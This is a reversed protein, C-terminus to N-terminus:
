NTTLKMQHFCDDQSTCLMMPQGGPSLMSAPNWLGFIYMQRWTACNPMFDSDGWYRILCNGVGKFYAMEDTGGDAIHHHHIHTAHCLEHAVTFTILRTINVDYYQAVVPSAHSVDINVHFEANTAAIATAMRRAFAEHGPPQDPPFENPKFPQVNVIYDTWLHIEKVEDPVFAGTTQNGADVGILPITTALAKAQDPRVAPHDDAYIAIGHLHKDTPSNFNVWRGYTSNMISNELRGYKSNSFHYVKVNTVKGYGIAGARIAAKYTTGYRTMDALGITFLEKAQPSLRTYVPNFSDDETLFGRYEDILAINDGVNGNDPKLDRDWNVGYGYGLIHEHEEWADAIKNDDKDYPITIYTKNKDYYPSANIVDGNDLTVEATLRAWAGYDMCTIQVIALSGKNIVSTAVSDTCKTPDFANIWFYKTSDSIKLDAKDDAGEIPYNSNFGKYHTINKLTYCVTFNGPYLTNSNNKDHVEVYFKSSDDGKTDDSGDVKPGKPLWTEYRSAPMPKLVAEYQQDPGGIDATLTEIISANNERILENKTYQIKFGFATKTVKIYSNDPNGPPPTAAGVIKAFHPDTTAGMGVGTTGDTEGHSHTGKYDVTSTHINITAGVSIASTVQVPDYTFSFAMRIIPQKTTITLHGESSSYNSNESATGTLSNDNVTMSSFAAQRAVDQGKTAQDTTMYKKDKNIDNVMKDIGDTNAGPPNMGCQVITHGNAEYIMPAKLSKGACIYITSGSNGGNSHTETIKKSYYFHVTTYTTDYHHQILLQNGNPLAQAQQLLVAKMLSDRFKMMQAPTMRMMKRAMEEAQAKTPTQAFVNCVPYIITIAIILILIRKM